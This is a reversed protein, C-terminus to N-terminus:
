FRYARIVTQEVRNGAADAAAAKLSVFGHGAPHEVRIRHDQVALPRWTAGDDFSVQVTLSRPKGAAGQRDVTVPITIVRGAATSTASLPPTFRVTMVPLAQPTKGKVHASRFAWTASVRTSLQFPAGRTAHATVTYAGETAPLTFEGAPQQLGVLETGDRHVTLSGGDIPSLQPRAASDAFVPVQFAVQNGLRATVMFPPLQAAVNPGFVGRNWVQRYTRAARYAGFPGNTQTVTRAPEDPRTGPLVESLQSSWRVGPGANYYETRVSPLDHTFTASYAGSLRGALTPYVERVGRAGPVASGLDVRVAALDRATLTRRVGTPFRSRDYHAFAYLYPSNEPEGWQGQVQAVVTDRRNDPGVQATYVNAFSQGVADIVTTREVPGLSLGVVALQQKAGARPVRVSVPRGRRADMTSTRARDLILLPQVLMTRDGRGGRVASVVAYRGKPLRLKVTGGSGGQAPTGPRDLRVVDVQADPAARGARDLHRVTLDYSQPERNVAVPVRVVTDGGTGVVAGTLFGDPLAVRTHATVAVSADGGAPVTITPRSLTFLRAALPRGDPGAASTTLTLTVPTPGANHYTLTRTVPRDDSHPWPQRGFGVSPPNVTVSQRIARTLDVRGAGQVYGSLKAAPRASAMLAAKLRAPTWDPHQQALIAAAGAVHPAAMSTGNLKLYRGDPGVRPGPLTNDKSLAAVIGVGPATIDPKLGDDGVRPGRSSFSAANDKGDVAGVTLAADASGPSGLTHEAPGENGAAVVFLTGYRATLTEVARELPDTGASDAGGLSMNVVRARKDAAAWQMGALIASEPCSEDGCVKGDYLQVDPAVGRYRGGSAAGTGTVISAVHTGHGVNDVVPGDGAFNRAQVVRGALDPHTVDIGTDLVAVPVGKGTHGAAWAVPAGIQAVSTDLAPRLKADLWVRGVGSSMTRVGSQAPALRNWFAGAAHRPLAVATGNVAPLARVATTDRLAQPRVTTGGGSEVILPLAASRADDYGDALLRTVDFLRQDLRGARILPLADAPVVTLRGAAARRVFGVNERGPAPRVAIRNSGDVAVSLRDGTILTIDRFPSRGASPAPAPGAAAAGAGPAPAPEAAASGAGPAIAAPVVGTVAAVLLSVARRSYLRM